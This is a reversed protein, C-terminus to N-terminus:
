EGGGLDGISGFDVGIFDLGGCVEGVEVGEERGFLEVGRFTGSSGSKLSPSTNSGM